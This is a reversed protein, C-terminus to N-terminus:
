LLELLQEKSLKPHFPNETEISSKEFSKSNFIYRKFDEDFNIGSFQNLAKIFDKTTINTHTFNTHLENLFPTLGGIDTLRYNLYAMFNAGKGYAATDTSRKYSSHNSMSSSRFQVQKVSKYNGDRWSAIAEDIWGSNGDVPMVGRAFYSHTLEHGLASKSTITAGAYEMGGMKANYIILSPHPWQGFKSELEKLTRITMEKLNELSTQWFREKSYITVPFTKGFKSTFDFKIEKYTGQPVLHFYLSSSTFYSPYEIHFSNKSIKTIKGNTYITHDKDAGVIKVNMTIAFQDYELNTPLYQEMFSRDDLDSLWFASRVTGSMKSLRTNSKIRNTIVLKHPGAKLYKSISRYKTEGKPATVAIMKTPTDNISVGMDKPVLDFIPHGDKSQNFFIETKAIAKKEKVDYTISYFVKEFDVFRMQQNNHKFDNPAKALLSLSMLALIMISKM